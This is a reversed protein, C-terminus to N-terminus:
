IGKQLTCSHTLLYPQSGLLGLGCGTGWLYGRHICRLHGGLVRRQGGGSGGAAREPRGGAAGLAAGRDAPTVPGGRGGVARRNFRGLWDVPAYKVQCTGDRRM